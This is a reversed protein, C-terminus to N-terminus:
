RSSEVDTESMFDPMRRQRRFASYEERDKPDGPTWDLPKLRKQMSERFTARKQIMINIIYLPIFMVSSVFSCWGLIIAWSPYPIDNYTITRIFAISMILIFKM